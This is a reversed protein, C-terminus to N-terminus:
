LIFLKVVLHSLGVNPDSLSGLAGLVGLARDTNLLVTGRPHSLDFVNLVM